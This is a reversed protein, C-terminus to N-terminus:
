EGDEVRETETTEEVDLKDGKMEILTETTTEEEDCHVSLVVVSFLLLSLCRLPLM